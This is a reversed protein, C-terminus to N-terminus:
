RPTWPRPAYSSTSRRWGRRAGGRRAGAASAAYMQAKDMKGLAAAVAMEDLNTRIAAAEGRLGAM